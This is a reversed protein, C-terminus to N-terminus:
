ERVALPSAEGYSIVEPHDPWAETGNTYVEIFALVGHKVKVLSGAAADLGQVTIGVDGGILDPPTVRKADPPVSLYAFFGAGTLTVRSLEAVALQERLTAHAATDGALLRVGLDRVLRVIEGPIGPARLERPYSM